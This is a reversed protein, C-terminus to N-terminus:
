VTRAVRRASHFKRGYHAEVDGSPNRRGVSAWLMVREYVEAAMEQADRPGRGHLQRMKPSEWYGVKQGTRYLDAEAQATAEQRALLDKSDVRKWAKTRSAMGTKTM